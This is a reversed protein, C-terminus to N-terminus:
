YNTIKKVQQDAKRKWKIVKIKQPSEDQQSTEEDQETMREDEREDEM